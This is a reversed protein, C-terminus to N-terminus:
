YQMRVDDPAAANDEALVATKAKAPLPTYMMATEAGEAQSKNTYAGLLLAMENPTNMTDFEADFQSQLAARRAKEVGLGAHKGTTAVRATREASCLLQRQMVDVHTTYLLVTDLNELSYVLVVQRHQKVVKYETVSYFLEVGQIETRIMGASDLSVTKELGFLEMQLEWDAKIVNPKASQNHLQEPSLEIRKFKRSYTNYPTSNYADIAKDSEAVAAEFNWGSKFAEAKAKALFKEARHAYTRRSKVGEGYYYDSANDFVVQLTSFWREVRAKKDGTEAYTVKVGFHRLKTETTRWEETNHGPFRDIVLEGPLYGCHQVAMALAETYMWRDEAVGYCWGPAMGSHVDRVAVIYLYQERKKGAADKYLWPLYNRRTGDMEWREGAYLATETPIGMGKRRKAVIGGRQQATLYQMENASLKDEFWRVSPVPKGVQECLLRLTRAIYTNPWNRPNARMTLMWQTLEEDNGFSRNCNGARPLQIVETALEGSCVMAVKEQLRKGSEPLYPLRLEALKKAIHEFESRSLPQLMYANALVTLIAACQALEKAQKLGQYRPLQKVYNATYAADIDNYLHAFQLDFAVQAAMDKWFGAEKNCGEGLMCCDYYYVGNVLSWRWARAGRANHGRAKALFAYDLGCVSCVLDQHLWLTTTGRETTSIVLGAKQAYNPM